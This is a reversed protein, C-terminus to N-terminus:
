PHAHTVGDFSRHARTPRRALWSPAPFRRMEQPFGYSHGRWVGVERDGRM